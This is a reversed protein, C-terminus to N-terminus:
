DRGANRARVRAAFAFGGGDGAEADALLLKVASFGGELLRTAEDSNCAEVVKYGCDRLYEALPHRVLIDAEVIMLWTKEGGPPKSM